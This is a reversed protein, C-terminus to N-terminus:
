NARVEGYIRKYFRAKKLSYFAVMFWVIEIIPLTAIEILLSLIFPDMSNVFTIIKYATWSEIVSMNGQFDVTTMNQKAQATVDNYAVQWVNEFATLGAINIATNRQFNVGIIILSFVLVICLCKKLGFYPVFFATFLIVAPFGFIANLPIVQGVLFGCIIVGLFVTTKPNM